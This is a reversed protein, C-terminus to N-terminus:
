HLQLLSLQCPLLAHPLCALLQQLCAMAAQCCVPWTAALEACRVQLYGFAYEAREDFKEAREHMAHIFDDEEVVQHIDVSTGHLVAKSASHALRSYWSQSSSSRSLSHVHPLQQDGAPQQENVGKHLKSAAATAADAEVQEHHRRAKIRLLPVVVVATLIGAGVAILASM